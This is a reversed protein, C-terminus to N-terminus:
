FVDGAPFPSSGMVVAETQHRRGAPRFIIQESKGAAAM